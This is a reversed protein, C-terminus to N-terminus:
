SGGNIGRARLPRTDQIARATDTADQMWDHWDIGLIFRSKCLVDELDALRFGGDRRWRQYEAHDAGTGFASLLEDAVHLPVITTEAKPMASNTHSNSAILVATAQWSALQWDLRM